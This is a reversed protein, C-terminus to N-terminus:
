KEIRLRSGCTRCFRDKRQARKGCQHCYVDEIKGDKPVLKRAKRPDFYKMGIQWIYFMVGAIMIFGLGGLLFPLYTSLSIRGQTSENIIGTELPQDSVTLQNSTKTYTLKIPVHEGAELGNSTWELYKQTSGEPTSETMLPITTIETTDIPVKIRVTFTNVAYNGPWRYTYKRQTNELTLPAYYEIHYSTDTNITLSVHQWGAEMFPEQHPAILLNGSSAYAVAILTADSPISLTVDVPLPTGEELTFDYIVLMAPQDFEPWLQVNVTNLSVQTQATSTQPLAFVTLLFTVLIWKRITVHM